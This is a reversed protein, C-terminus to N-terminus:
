FQTDATGYNVRVQRIPDKEDDIQKELTVRYWEDIIEGKEKKTRKVTSYKNLIESNSERAENILDMAEIENDVRYTETVNILYRSM